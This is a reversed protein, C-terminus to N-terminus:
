NTSGGVEPPEPGIFEGMYTCAHMCQLIHMRTSTYMHTQEKNEPVLCSITTLLQSSILLLFPVTLNGAFFPLAALFLALFQQFHPKQFKRCIKPMFQSLLQLYITVLGSQGFRNKKQSNNKKNCKAM